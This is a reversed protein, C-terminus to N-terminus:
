TRDQELIRGSDTKVRPLEAILAERNPLRSTPPQGSLPRLEAVPTGRSEIVFSEGNVVRKLIQSTNLHLERATAKRRM